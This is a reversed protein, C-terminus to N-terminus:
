VNSSFPGARMLAYELVNWAGRPLAKLSIGYSTPDDTTMQVVVAFHDHFNQGVAPLHHKVEIGFGKLAEGDGIGSLMLIQPSAIAGAAVIVERRATFRRVGDPGGTEVGTA